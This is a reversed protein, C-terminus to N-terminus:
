IISAHTKLWFAEHKSIMACTVNSNVTPPFFDSWLKLFYESQFNQWMKTCSCLLLLQAENECMIPATPRTQQYTKTSDSSSLRIHPHMHLFPESKQIMQKASNTCHSKTWPKICKSFRHSVETNWTDTHHQSIHGM